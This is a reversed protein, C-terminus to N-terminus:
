KRRRKAIVKAVFDAAGKIPDKGMAVDRPIVIEGESLMAPVKDNAYSNGSKVAKQHPAKAKVHGGSSALGGDAMKKEKEGHLKKGVAKGFSAFGQQIPNQQQSSEGMQKGAGSLFKGFSSMPASSDAPAQAPAAGSMVAGGVDYHQVQGGKAMGIAAGAGQMVGGILGQKGQMGQQLLATNGSNVNGQAAVNANNQSALASQMQGANTLNANTNAQTQAIQQGAMQNAMGQQMGAQTTGLNGFAQQTNALGSLANVQQNAQMTAGQGVAQQQTAAGQQAAQRALLGTNAGAGRQGAMLAAQNAVNAGTQQNLMAQAPNPGKGQAINQYMGATGQLGQIAANQTGVGNAAQLQGALASQQGLGNQGQLAALLAQQSQLSNNVGGQAQQMQEPTVAQQITAMQPKDIGAGMAGSFENGMKGAIGNLGDANLGSRKLSEDYVINSGGTAVTAAHSRAGGSTASGM